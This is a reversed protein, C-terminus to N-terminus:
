LGIGERELMARLQNRSRMLSMKVKSEGIGFDRAIERVSCFYWYRRLFILRAEASLGSLFRNLVQVLALDDAIQETREPAPICAKLEDLALPIQGCGRKVATQKQYRDLSLRRTIKGLFASLRVPRHPPM